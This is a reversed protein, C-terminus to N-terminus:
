PGSLEPVTAPEARDFKPGLSVQKLDGIFFTWIVAGTAAVTGIFALAWIFSGTRQYIIGVVLPTIIGSLNAAASFLGGVLGLTGAPAIESLVAWGSSSMAQAFFALSLIGVIVANSNVYNALIISSALALGLIVPLKRAINLSVDMALLWDSLWGAFLIGFFGALYPLSSFLGVQIWGMHRSEVLYTPFWTLFFTFTSYVAFQGICLSLIQHHRLLAWFLAFNFDRRGLDPQGGAIRILATASNDTGTDTAPDRYALWWVFAFALGGTGSLFFLTRWGYTACVFLLLPAGFGLAIYEAATYVSIARARESRPFWTAVVNSNAPFCPGEFVGLTIRWGTLAAVSSATSHLLTSISWGVIAILYVVRIGFRDLAIGAPIQAAFYSWSFASFIIGLTLPSLAFEHRIYPSAVGM